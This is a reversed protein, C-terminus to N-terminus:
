DSKKPTANIPEDMERPKIIKAPNGGVIMGAPVDKVVVSRAAVVANDGVTVGPGIFAGACIWVGSGITIPPRQLPLNPKTHDHTGACLYVDQSIVTHNGITVKGLNYVTVGESLMAYEGMEFLWPHWIHTSAKTGSSPHIKAGFRTLLFRRWTHSRRFSPKILLSQVWQWSFRRVYDGFTYPYGATQDLRQFVAQKEPTNQQQDPKDVM